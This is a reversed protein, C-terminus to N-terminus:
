QIHSVILQRLWLLLLLNHRMRKVLLRLLIDDRWRKCQWKSLCLILCWELLLHRLLSHTALGWLFNLTIWFINYATFRLLRSQIKGLSIHASQGKLFITYSIKTMWSTKIIIILSINYLTNNYLIPPQTFQSTSNAASDMTLPGTASNCIDPTLIDGGKDRKGVLSGDM